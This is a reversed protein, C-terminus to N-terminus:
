IDEMHYPCYLPAPKTKYPLTITASQIARGENYENAESSLRWFELAETYVYPVIGLGYSINPEADRGEGFEYHYRLALLINKYSYGNQLKLDSIQKSILPTPKDISFLQCLHLILENYDPDYVPSLSASKSRAADKSKAANKLETKYAQLCAQHFSKQQYTAKDAEITSKCYVCVAKRSM